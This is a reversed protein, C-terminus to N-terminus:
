SKITKADVALNNDILNFLDFHQRLLYHTIAHPNFKYHHLDSDAWVNGNLEVGLREVGSMLVWRKPASHTEKDFWLIRGSDPFPRSFILQWIAKKEDLAIDAIQRLIPKVGEVSCTGYSGTGKHVVHANDDSVGVLEAVENDDTTIVNCGIYYHIFDQLKLDKNSLDM